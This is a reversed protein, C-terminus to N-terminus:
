RVLGEGDFQKCEVHQKKDKRRDIIWEGNRVNVYPTKQRVDINEELGVMARSAARERTVAVAIDQVRCVIVYLDFFRVGYSHAHQFSM